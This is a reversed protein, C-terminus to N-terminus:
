ESWERIADYSCIYMCLACGNCKELDVVVKGRKLEMADKPCIKVCDVCGVCKYSLVDFKKEVKSYIALSCFFFLLYMGMIVKKLM